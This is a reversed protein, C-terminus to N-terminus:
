ELVFIKRAPITKWKALQKRWFEADFKQFFSSWCVQTESGYENSGSGDNQASFPDTDPDHTQYGFISFFNCSFILKKKSL